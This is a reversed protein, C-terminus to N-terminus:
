ADHSLTVPAHHRSLAPFHPSSSERDLIASLIRALTLDPAKADGWFHPRRAPSQGCASALRSVQFPSGMALHFHNSMVCWAHVEWGAKECAEGLCDLFALKAGEDRFLASRYNGRSTRRLRM